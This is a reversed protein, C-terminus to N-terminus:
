IYVNSTLSAIESFIMRRALSEAWSGRKPIHRRHAHVGATVSTPHCVGSGGASTVEATRDLSRAGWGTRNYVFRTWGSNSPHRALPKVAWGVNMWSQTITQQEGTSGVKNVLAHILTTSLGHLQRSDVQSEAGACQALRQDGPWPEVKWCSGGRSTNKALIELWKAMWYGMQFCCISFLGVIESMFLSQRDFGCSQCGLAPQVNTWRRSRQGLLFVVNSWRRTDPPLGPNRTWDVIVPDSVQRWGHRGSCKNHLFRRWICTM